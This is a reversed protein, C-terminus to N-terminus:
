PVNRMGGIMTTYPRVTAECKLDRALKILTIMNGGKGAYSNLAEIAHETAGNRSMLRLFDIVTRAPSTMKVPVDSVMITEIGVTMSDHRWRFGRVALDSNRPASAKGFLFAAFIEHPNQTTLGHYAAATDLCVVAEPYRVGFTALSSWEQHRGALDYVGKAVKVILDEELLEQIALQSGAVERVDAFRRPQAALFALVQKKRDDKSIRVNKGSEIM